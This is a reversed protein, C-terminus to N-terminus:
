LIRPNSYTTMFGSMDAVQLTLDSYKLLVPKAVYGCLLGAMLTSVEEDNAPLM